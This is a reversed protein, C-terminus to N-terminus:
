YPSLSSTLLWPHSGVDSTQVYHGERRRDLEEALIVSGCPRLTKWYIKYLPEGGSNHLAYEVLLTGSTPATVKERYLRETFTSDSGIFAVQRTSVLEGGSESVWDMLTQFSTPDYFDGM